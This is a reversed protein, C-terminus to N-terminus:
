LEVTRMRNKIAAAFEFAFSSGRVCTLFRECSSVFAVFFPWSSLGRLFGVFFLRSVLTIQDHEEEPGEHRRPLETSKTSSTSSCRSVYWRASGM